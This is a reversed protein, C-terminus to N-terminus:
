LYQWSHSINTLWALVAECVKRNDPVSLYRSEENNVAYFSEFLWTYTTKVDIISSYLSDSGDLHLFPQMQAERGGEQLGFLSNSFEM